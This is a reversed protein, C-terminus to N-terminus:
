LMGMEGDESSQGSFSLLGGSDNQLCVFADM